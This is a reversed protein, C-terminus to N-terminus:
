RISRRIRRGATIIPTTARPVMVGVGAGRGAAGGTAPAMSRAWAVAVMSRSMSASRARRFAAMGGAIVAGRVAEVAERVLLAEEGVCVYVAAPHELSRRLDDLGAVGGALM